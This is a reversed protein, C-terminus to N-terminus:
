GVRQMAKQRRAELDTGSERRAMRRLVAPAILLGAAAWLGLVGATELHRWSGGIEVAALADPLLGSRVGLGLWYIPFLQGIWQLWEPLQTIPYFIGSIAILGWIPLIVVWLSRPDSVFSGIIAGLPLTALLGLLLVWALTLWSGLDDAMLGDFLFVGPVLLIAASVLAIGSAQMIKGVLYGPIGNPIAKMRLLTGDEREVILTMALGVLGGWAVYMGLVGPLAMAGLSFGMGPVTAGRMFYVVVLLIAPLFLYSWVDQPSTFTQRLEIWGRALGARIANSTQNM